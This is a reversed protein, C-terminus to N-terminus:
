PSPETPEYTMGYTGAPKGERLKKYRHAREGFYIAITVALFVAAAIFINIGAEAMCLTIHLKYLLKKLIKQFKISSYGLYFPRNSETKCLIM